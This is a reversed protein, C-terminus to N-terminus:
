HHTVFDWYGLHLEWCGVLHEIASSWWWCCRSAQKFHLNNPGIRLRSFWFNQSSPWCDTKCVNWTGRSCRLSQSAGNEDTILVKRTAPANAWHSKTIHTHTHTHHVPLEYRPNSSAATFWSLLGRTHGHGRGGLSWVWVNPPNFDDWTGGWNNELDDVTVEWTVKMGLTRYEPRKLWSWIIHVINIAICSLCEKM